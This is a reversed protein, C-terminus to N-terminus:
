SFRKIQKRVENLGQGQDTAPLPWSVISSDEPSIYLLRGGTKTPVDFTEIAIEPSGPEIPNDIGQYPGRHHLVGIPTVRIKRLNTGLVEVTQGWALQKSQPGAPSSSAPAPESGSSPQDSSCGSLALALAVGILSTSTKRM